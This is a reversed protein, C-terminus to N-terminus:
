GRRRARRKEKKPESRVGEGRVWDTVKRRIEPSRVCDELQLPVGTVPCRPGNKQLWRALATREFALGGPSVVPDCLLKGDLACRLERPAHLVVDRLGGRVPVAAIAAAAAAALSKHAGEAAAEVVAPATSAETSAVAPAARVETAM